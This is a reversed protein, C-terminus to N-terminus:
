RQRMVTCRTLLVYCLESVSTDPHQCADCAVSCYYNIHTELAFAQPKCACRGCNHGWETHLQPNSQLSTLGSYTLLRLRNLTEREPIVVVMDGAKSMAAKHKLEHGATNENLCVM